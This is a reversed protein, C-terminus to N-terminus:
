SFTLLIEKTTLNTMERLSLLILNKNFKNGEGHVFIEDYNNFIDVLALGLKEENESLQNEDMFMEIDRLLIRFIKNNDRDDNDIYYIQDDRNEITTSMDEYSLLRNLEKQDKIMLYNKCITGFYSYAKKNKEPKFKDSKTILFSLVDAHLDDYTENKRYLKYRRIISDIMKNLPAYLYKNYVLSRETVTTATLFMRVAYEETEGFYFNKKKPRPM